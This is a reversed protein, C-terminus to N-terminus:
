RSIEKIVPQIKNTVEFDNGYLTWTKDKSKLNIELENKGELMDTLVVNEAEAISMGSVDIGNIKTNTYFREKGTLTNEFFLQCSILLAVALASVGLCWLFGGKKRTKEKNKSTKKNNKENKM